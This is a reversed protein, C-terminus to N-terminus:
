AAASPRLPLIEAPPKTLFAAWRQMLGRRLELLDSRAYARVTESRHLHALAAEALDAPEGHDQTWSRFTSRFGHVTIDGRGMRRLCASLTMDSLAVDEGRVSFFVLPGTRVDALPQVIAMAAESLPVRHERNSKMRGAPIVWLGAALDLETWTALRVEVSRAATLIAFALARAGMGHDRARLEVMFRPAEAWPLAPRHQVPQVKTKAPLMLALNGRWRAPNEGSRWGRARAYDMIAEVRMRVRNATETKPSWIPEITRLIDNVDIESVLKQGIAPYAYRALTNRWLVALKERRWGQEHAAVYMEAVAAFSLSPTEAKVRANKREALPDGGTLFIARERAHRSRAEALSVESANGLSMVRERGCHQYRYIWYRRDPAVVHLFLGDGDLYKGPSRLARVAAATLKPL